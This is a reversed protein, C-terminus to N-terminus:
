YRENNKTIAASLVNSYNVLTKPTRPTATKKPTSSKSRKAKGNKEVTFDHSVVYPRRCPITLLLQGPAKPQRYITSVHAAVPSPISPGQVM